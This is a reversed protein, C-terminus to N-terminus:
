ADVAVRSSWVIGGGAAFAIPRAVPDTLRTSLVALFIVIAVGAFAVLATSAFMSDRHKVFYAAVSGAPDHPDPADGLASFGALALVFGVIGAVGGVTRASDGRRM